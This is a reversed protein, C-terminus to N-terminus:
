SSNQMQQLQGTHLQSKSSEMGKSKSAAAASTQNHVAVGIEILMIWHPDFCGLPHKRCSQSKATQHTTKYGESENM